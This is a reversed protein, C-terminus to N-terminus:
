TSEKERSKLWAEMAKQIAGAAPGLVDALREADRLEIENINTKINYEPTMRQVFIMADRLTTKGSADDKVIKKAEKRIFKARQRLAESVAAQKAANISADVYDKPPIMDRIVVSKIILGWDEGQKSLAGATSMLDDLSDLDFLERGKVVRLSEMDRRFAAHEPRSQDAPLQLYRKLMGKNNRGDLGKEWIKVFNCTSSDVESILGPIPDNATNLFTFLDSIAFIVVDDTEIPVGDLGYEVIKPPDITIDKVDHVTGWKWPELWTLSPGFYEKTPTGISYVIGASGIPITLRFGQFFYIGGLIIGATGATADRLPPYWSLLLGTAAAYTIAAVGASQLLGNAYSGGATKLEM